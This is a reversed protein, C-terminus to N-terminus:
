AISERATAPIRLLHRIIFRGPFGLATRSASATSAGTSGWASSNIVPLVTEFTCELCGYDFKVERFM